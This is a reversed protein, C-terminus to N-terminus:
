VNFLQERSGGQFHSKRCSNSTASRRELEYDSRKLNRCESQVLFQSHCRLFEFINQLDNCHDRYEAPFHIKKRRLAILDSFAALSVHTTSLNSVKFIFTTQVSAIESACRERMKRVTEFSENGM